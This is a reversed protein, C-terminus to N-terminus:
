GDPGLVANIGDARDFRIASISSPRSSVHSRYKYSRTPRRQYMPVGAYSSSEGDLPLEPRCAASSSCGSPALLGSPEALLTLLRSIDRRVKECDWEALDDLSAARFAVKRVSHEKPTM